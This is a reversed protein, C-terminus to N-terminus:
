TTNNNICYSVTFLRYESLTYFLNQNISNDKLVIFTKQSLHKLAIEYLHQVEQNKPTKFLQEQNSLCILVNLKGVIFYM